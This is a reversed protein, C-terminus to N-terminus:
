SRFQGTEGVILLCVEGMQGAMSQASRIVFGLAKTVRYFRDDSRTKCQVHECFEGSWGNACLCEETRVNLTGGNM